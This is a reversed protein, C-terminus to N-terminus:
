GNKLDASLGKTSLPIRHIRSSFDDVITIVGIAGEWSRIGMFKFDIRLMKYPKM